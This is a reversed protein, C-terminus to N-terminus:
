WDMNAMDDYMRIMYEIYEKIEQSSMRSIMDNRTNENKSFSVNLGANIYAFISQTSTHKSILKLFSKM